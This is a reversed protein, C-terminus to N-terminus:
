GTSPDQSDTYWIHGPIRRLGIEPQENLHHFDNRRITDSTQVIELFFHMLNAHTKGGAPSALSTWVSPSASDFSITKYFTVKASFDLNRSRKKPLIRHQKAKLFKCISIKM